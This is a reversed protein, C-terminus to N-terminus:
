GSIHVGEAAVFAPQENEVPALTNGPLFLEEPLRLRLFAFGNMNQPTLVSSIEACSGKFNSYSTILALPTMEHCM